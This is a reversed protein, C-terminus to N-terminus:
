AHAGGILCPRLLRHHLYVCVIATVAFAMVRPAMMQIRGQLHFFLLRHPFGLWATVVVYQPVLALALVIM